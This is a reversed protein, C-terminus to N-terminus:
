SNKGKMLGTVLRNFADSNAQAKNGEQGTSRSTHVAKGRVNGMPKGSKPNGKLKLPLPKSPAGKKFKQTGSTAKSKYANGKKDYMGGMKGLTDARTGTNRAAKEIEGTKAAKIKKYMAPDGGANKISDETTDSDSESLKGTMKNLLALKLSEAARQYHVTPKKTNIKKQKAMSDKFGHVARRADLGMGARKNRAAIKEPRGIPDSKAENTKDSM